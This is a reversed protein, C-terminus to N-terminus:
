PSVTIFYDPSGCTNISYSDGTKRYAGSVRVHTGPTVALGSAAAKENACVYDENNDYQIKVNGQGASATFFCTTSTDNRCGTVNQSVTGVFTATGGSLITLGAPLKGQSNRYSDFIWFGGAIVAILIFLSFIQKLANAM